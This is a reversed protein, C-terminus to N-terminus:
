GRQRRKRAEDAKPCTAWHSIYLTLGENRAADLLPGSLQLGKGAGQGSEMIYVNGRDRDPEPDLPNRNGSMAMVLWKVQRTCFECRRDATM